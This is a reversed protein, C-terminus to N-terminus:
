TPDNLWKTATNVREMWRQTERQHDPYTERQPSWTPRGKQNLLDRYAQSGRLGEIAEKVIPSGKHAKLWKEDADRGAKWSQVTEEYTKGEHAKEPYGSSLLATKARRESFEVLVQRLPAPVNDADFPSPSSDLATRGLAERALGALYPEYEWTRRGRGDRDEVKRIETMLSKYDSLSSQKSGLETDRVGNIEKLRLENKVIEVEDYFDDVSRSQRKDTLLGSAFPIDKMGLKGDAANEVSRAWRGYGGGTSHNLLHDLQAPSLGILPVLGTFKGLRSALTTTYPSERHTKPDGKTTSPEVNRERFYDWDIAVEALGRFFGGGVGPVRGVLNDAIAMGGEKVASGREDAHYTADLTREVVNAIMGGMDRPKPITVYTVGNKGWTWNDRLLYDEGERYDDDNHRLYWAAAGTAASAALYVAYRLATIKAQENKPSESDFLSPLTKIAQWERFSAQITANFFTSYANIHRGIRGARKFNITAEAAANIGRIRVHEPLRDVFKNTNTNYWRGGRAEYGHNKIEQEMAALRPPVDSAALFDQLNDVYGMGTEKLGALTVEQNQGLMKKRLRQRSGIDAGLPSYLGGDLTEFERILADDTPQGMMERYKYGIYRPLMELPKGLTDTGEVQSRGQFEVYDRLLNRAGFSTSIGTAGTRMIKASERFIATWAQHTIEDMGMVTDYLFRDLQYMVPKGFADPIIVTARDGRPTLDQRWLKIQHTIDPEQHAAWEMMGSDADAPLGHRKAFWEWNQKTVNEGALIKRAIKWARAEDEDVFGEKVLDNLIEEVTGVEPRMDPDIRDMLGGMGQVGGRLPDLMEALAHMARDKGARNYFQVARAITADFPDLIARGSGKSSRGKVAKPLNVYRHGAGASIGEEKARHLPFYNDGYEDLMKQAGEIDLSGADVLMKILSNNFQALGVMMQDYRRLKDPQGAVYDIWKRAADVGGPFGTNYSPRSAEMFLTHKAWGYAVAEDYEEENKVLKGLEAIGSGFYHGDRISSVGDHVAASAKARATMDHAMILEYPDAKNSSDYGRQKAEEVAMKIAAFRDVWDRALRNGREHMRKKFREGFTREDLDEGPKGIASRVRQFISQDAYKKVYERAEQIKAYTEKHKVSFWSEFWRHANPAIQDTDGEAIYHRIFEAWGEDIRGQTAYDLSSLEQRVPNTVNLKAVHPTVGARKDIHHAVEHTAVALNLIYPEKVRVIESLHKYIGAAKPNSRSFGGVAIKVDFMRQLTAVIDAAAIGDETDGQQRANDGLLQKTPNGKRTSDVGHTQTLDQLVSLTDTVPLFWRTALGVKRSELGAAGLAATEKADYGTVEFLVDKGIRVKNVIWGNDLYLTGSNSIHKMTERTDSTVTYEDVDTPASMAQNEPKPPAPYSEVIRKALDRDQATGLSTLELLRDVTEVEKDRPVTITWISSGSQNVWDVGAIETMRKDLYYKGGKNKGKPATFRIRGDPTLMVAVVQDPSLITNRSQRVYEVVQKGSGFTVQKRAEWDTVDFTKPMLIGRKTVGDRDSYFVVRGRDGALQDYAGLLNGVGIYREERTSSEAADFLRITEDATRSDDVKIPSNATLISSAMPTVKRTADAVSIDVRITSPAMPNPSKGIRRIGTVIGPIEGDMTKVLVPTGPPYTTMVTQVTSFQSAFLQQFRDRELDTRAGRLKGDVYERMKVSWENLKSSAWSEGENVIRHAPVDKGLTDHIQKTVEASTFAKGQVKSSVRELYAPQVFPNANQSDGPFVEFQDQTVAQLDLTRAMLPNTGLSDLEEIRQQFAATVDEWFQRQVETKLAPLRGTVKRAAGEISSSLPAGNQGVAVPFGLNANLDPNDVTVYQAVVADGVKNIIDPADFNVVGKSKGTVNASLSALKKTLVSAPRLEAPADSLLLTYRPLRDELQGTRNIRGLMQMFEDINKAPQAIIMHRRRQGAPPNKKSAHMSLGVAGSRNLIVADLKGRNIDNVIAIKGKTGIEGDPRTSLYAKGDRYEVMRKRGTVEAVKMGAAKLKSRIMDIPSATLNRKGFTEIMAKTRNYVTLAATGLEEDTMYHKYWTEPDTRDPKITLTRVKDLYRQMTASFEYSIEDGDQVQADAAWEDLISEMTNDIAIVPTEGAKWAKIAEDAVKEAKMAVLQQDIINHMVSAFETSDVGAQSAAANQGIGGGSSVVNTRITNIAAMKAADFWHIATFVDAAEDAIKMDVNVLGTNFEIGAFSKERRMYVGAEALMESVVQQLPVGGKAITDALRPFRQLVGPGFARAYLDMVEPRKAFTASSYFVGPSNALVSRMYQALKPANQQNSSSGQSGQGETGGATHSEDLIFYGHRALRAIAARRDTEQGSATVLQSYTTFVADYPVQTVENKKRGKAEAVFGKGAEFNRTASNLLELSTKPNQKFTRIVQDDKDRITLTGDGTTDNTILPNFSQNDNAGIDSLDRLMDVFLGPKETIFVPVIGQRKAYVMMAAVTRGKGVGTQDGIIFGNGHKHNFIALALADVQEASFHERFKDDVTRGLERAVFEDIDGFEEEVANLAKEYAHAHNRPVLTGVSNSKSRPKNPIQFENGDDDTGPQDSPESLTDSKPEPKSEPKGVISEVAVSADMQGSTDMGRFGDWAKELSPALRLAKEKGIGASVQEIFDKFKYIGLETYAGILEIAVIMAEPNVGSTLTNPGALDGLKKLLDNIKAKTKDINKQTDTKEDSKDKPKDPTKPPADKKRQSAIFDIDVRPATNEYRKGISLKPKAPVLWSPQPGLGQQWKMLEVRQAASLKTIDLKIKSPDLVVPVDESQEPKRVGV